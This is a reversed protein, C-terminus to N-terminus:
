RKYAVVSLDVGEASQSLWLLLWVWFAFYSDLTQALQNNAPMYLVALSLFLFVLAGSDSKWLVASKWSSGWLFGMIVILVPVGPFGVDSALWPFITSWQYKDSWGAISVKFLYSREYASDDLIKTFASMLFASHGVGFTSTFDDKLALSLGYYGQAVYATLMEMAFDSKADLASQSPTRVSCVVGEAVCFSDSGGMRSEKREVFLYVAALLMMVLAISLVFFRSLKFPFGGREVALRCVAILAAGMSFILLDGTERDTGRMFSFILVATIHGLLLLVDFRSLEKWKLIAFPVVCYVFPAFIARVIAVYSRIGSENAELAALMERYAQGQDGLVSLVEWPWKGTYVWTAPFVLVISFLAGIRYFFRWSSLAKGRGVKIVGLTFGLAIALLCVILFFLLVGENTVPWDFPGTFFLLITLSLYAMGLMLPLYRIKGFVRSM